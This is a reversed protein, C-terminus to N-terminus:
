GSSRAPPLLDAIASEAVALVRELPQSADIVRIRRPEALALEDYARAVKIFFEEEERELRDPEGGRGAARGRATAVDLHLLLTRDAALSRTAFENISRVDRVGLSRGGGQYALSSDAFRDLVIWEGDELAPNVEQEVLQARAAAYILAEARAGIEVETNQVLVRLYESLAVGGPERLVRARVDRAAIADRLRAAVTSKGAGDLGEVTILRGRAM